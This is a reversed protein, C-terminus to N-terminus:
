NGDSSIRGSLLNIEIRAGPIVSAVALLFLEIFEARENEPLTSQRNFTGFMSDHFGAIYLIKRKLTEVDAALGALEGLVPENLRNRITENLENLWAAASDRGLEDQLTFPMSLREGSRTVLTVQKELPTARAMGPPLILSM